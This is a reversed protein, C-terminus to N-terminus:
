GFRRIRIARIRRDLRAKAAVHRRCDAHRIPLDVRHREDAVFLRTADAGLRNLQQRLLNDRRLAGFDVANRTSRDGARRCQVSHLRRQIFRGALVRRRDLHRRARVRDLFVAELLDLRHSDRHRHVFIANQAHFQVAILVADRHNTRHLVQQDRANDGILGVRHIRDRARGGRAVRHQRANAIHQHIRKHRASRIFGRQRGEFAALGLAVDALRNIYINEDHTEARGARRRNQSRRFRLLVRTLRDAHQADVRRTTPAARTGEGAGDHAHVCLAKLFLEVVTLVIHVAFVQIVSPKFIGLTVRLIFDDLFEEIIGAVRHIPQRILVAHQEVLRNRIEAALPRTHVVIHAAVGVLGVAIVVVIVLAGFGDVALIRHHILIILTEVIIKFCHAAFDHQLCGSVAQNIVLFGVLHRANQRFAM